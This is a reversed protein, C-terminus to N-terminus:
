SPTFTIPSGILNNLDDQIQATYSVSSDTFITISGGSTGSIDFPGVEIFGQRVSMQFGSPAASSLSYNFTWLFSSIVDGSATNLTPIVNSTFCRRWEFGDWAWLEKLSLWSSGNWVWLDTAQRWAGNWFYAEKAM